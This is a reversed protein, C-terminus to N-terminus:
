HGFHSHSISSSPKWSHNHPYCFPRWCGGCQSLLIHILFRAPATLEGIHDRTCLILDRSHHPEPKHAIHETIEPEWLFPVFHSFLVYLVHFFWKNLHFVYYAFIICSKIISLTLKINLFVHYPRHSNPVPLLALLARCYPLRSKKLNSEVRRVAILNGVLMLFLSICM